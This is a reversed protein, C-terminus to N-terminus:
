DTEEVRIVSVVETKEVVYSPQLNTRAKKTAAVSAALAEYGSAEDKGTVINQSKGLAQASVIDVYPKLAKLMSPPIQGLIGFTMLTLALNAGVNPDSMDLGALQLAMNERDRPQVLTIFMEFETRVAEVGEGGNARVLEKSM